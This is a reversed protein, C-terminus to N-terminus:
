ATAITVFFKWLVKIPSNNMMTEYIIRLEASPKYLAQKRKIGRLVKATSVSSRM